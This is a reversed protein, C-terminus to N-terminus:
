VVSRKYYILGASRAVTTASLVGLLPDQIVVFSVFLLTLESLGVIMRSKLLFADKMSGVMKMDMFIQQNTILIYLVVVIKTFWSLNIENNWWGMTSFLALALIVSIIQLLLFPVKARKDSAYQILIPRIIDPLFLIFALLQFLYMLDGFFSMKLFYVIATNKLLQFFIYSTESLVINSNQRFLFAVKEYGSNSDFKTKITLYILPFFYSLLLAAYLYNNHLWVFVPVALLLGVHLCTAIIVIRLDRLNKTLLFNYFSHFLSVVGFVVASRYDIGNLIGYITLLISIVISSFILLIIETHISNAKERITTLLLGWTSVVLMAIMSSRMLMYEGYFQSSVLNAIVINLLLMVGKTFAQSASYVVIDKSLLKNIKASVVGIKM